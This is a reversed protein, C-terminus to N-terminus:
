GVDATVEGHHYCQSALAFGEETLLAAAHCSLDSVAAASLVAHYRAEAENRTEHASVLNGVEGDAATQLEIVVYAM